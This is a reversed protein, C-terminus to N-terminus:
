KRRDDGSRRDGNGLWFGGIRREGQTRREEDTEDYEDQVIVENTEPHIEFVAKNNRELEIFNEIPLLPASWLKVTKDRSAIALTSGDPSFQVGYFNGAITEDEKGTAVDWLKVICLKGSRNYSTSVIRKGDPSFKVSEVGNAHGTLTKIEEGTSVDWLKITKDWSASALLSGDPSFALDNISHGHGKLKKYANGKKINWITVIKDWSGSALFESNPSFAVANIGDKSGKFTKLLDGTNADWLRIKGDSGASALFTDEQNFVVANISQKHGLLTRLEEGTKVNWLKITKDSSASALLKGDHSFAVSYIYESVSHGMLTQIEEGTRADSVITKWSASAVLSSDRSFAMSNVRLSHGFVMQREEFITPSVVWKRQKLLEDETAFIHLFSNKQYDNQIENLIETAASGAMILSRCRKLRNEVDESMVSMIELFLNEILESQYFDADFAVKIAYFREAYILEKLLSLAQPKEKERILAKAALYNAEQFNFNLEVAKDAYAKAKANNAKAYCAIGAHFYSEAAIMQSIDSFDYLMIQQTEDIGSLCAYVHKSFREGTTQFLEAASNLYTEALELNFLSPQYLYLIGIRQKLFCDMEDANSLALLQNLAEGYAENSAAAAYAKLAREYKQLLETNGKYGPFQEEIPKALINTIRLKEIWVISRWDLMLSAQIGVDRLLGSVLHKQHGLHRFVAVLPAFPETLKGIVLAAMRLLQKAYVKESSDTESNLLEKASNLQNKYYREQFDLESHIDTTPENGTLYLKFQEQTNEVALPNIFFSPM